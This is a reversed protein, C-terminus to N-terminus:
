WNTHNSPTNIDMGPLVSLNLIHLAQLHVENVTLPKDGVHEKMLSPLAAAYEMGRPSLASDGGIKGEM